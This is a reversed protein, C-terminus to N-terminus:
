LVEVVKKRLVKGRKIKIRRGFYKELLKIMEVNAKNDEAAAKVFVDYNGESTKVVESKGSKPYVRINIIM